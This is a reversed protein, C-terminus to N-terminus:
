ARRETRNVGSRNRTFNFNCESYHRNFDGRCKPCCFEKNKTLKGCSLCRNM